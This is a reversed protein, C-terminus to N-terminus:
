LGFRSLEANGMRIRPLVFRKGKCMINGHVTTFALKYAYKTLIKKVDVSPNGYPYAFAKDPNQGKEALQEDALRIEKDQLEL